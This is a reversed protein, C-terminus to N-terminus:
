KKGYKAILRRRREHDPLSHRDFDDFDKKMESSLVIKEIASIKEFSERGLVYSSDRWHGDRSQIHVEGGGLNRATIRAAAIAEKQTNFTATTSSSKKIAWGQSHRVVYVTRAQGGAECDSPSDAKIEYSDQSKPLKNVRKDM